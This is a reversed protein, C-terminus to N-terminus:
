ISIITASIIFFTKIMGFIIKKLLTDLIMFFPPMGPIFM